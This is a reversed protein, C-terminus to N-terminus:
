PERLAQEESFIELFTLFYSLSTSTPLLYVAVDSVEDFNLLLMFFAFVSM